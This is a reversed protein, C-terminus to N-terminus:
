MCEVCIWSPVCLIEFNIFAQLTAELHPIRDAFTALAGACLTLQTTLIITLSDDMTLIPDTQLEWFKSSVHLIDETTLDLWCVRVNSDIRHLSFGALRVMLM